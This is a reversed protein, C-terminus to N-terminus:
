ISLRLVDRSVVGEAGCGYADISARIHEIATWDSSEIPEREKEWRSLAMSRYRGTRRPRELGLGTCPPPSMVSALVSMISATKANQFLFRCITPITNSLNICYWITSGVSTMAHVNPFEALSLLPSPVPVFGNDTPANSHSRILPAKSLALPLTITALLFTATNRFSCSSLMARALALPPASTALMSTSASTFGMMLCPVSVGRQLAHNGKVNDVCVVRCLSRLESGSQFRKRTECAFLLARKRPCNFTEHRAERGRRVVRVLVRVAPAHDPVVSPFLTPRPGIVLPPGPFSEPPVSM